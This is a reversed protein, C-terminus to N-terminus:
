FLRKVEEAMRQLEELTAPQPKRARIQERIPTPLQSFYAQMVPDEAFNAYRDDMRDGGATAQGFTGFNDSVFFLGGWYPPRLRVIKNSYM